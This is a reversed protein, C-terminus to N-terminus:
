WCVSWRDSYGDQSHGELAIKLIKENGEGKIKEKLFREFDENGCPLSVFGGREASLYAANSIMLEYVGEEGSAILDEGFEISNAFNQLIEKHGGGVTPEDFVETETPIVPFCEESEACVTREDELLKTFILKGGEIVIKGLNGAIEVRNTGPYEGTTTIFTATAGSEYEAFITVDDEVAIDHYKGFSVFACVKSPMGCVWQWIDLNHPAQNLLVGGGEGSWTARWSGSDYYRQTRYWNTITWSFRKLEGIAGGRVLERAKRFLPNTRQNFMIGFVKGSARAADNMELAQRLYVGAPKETLVNKGARFSDVAIPSHLYHPVAIIVSNIDAKALMENYDAFIDVDAYQKKFDECKKFEIDCVASLVMNKINGDAICKAHAYGMNGLGVLGVKVM